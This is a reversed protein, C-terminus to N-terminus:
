GERSIDPLNDIFRVGDLVSKHQLGVKFDNIQNTYEQQLSEKEQQISELRQIYEQKENKATELQSTLADVRDDAGSSEKLQTVESGIRSALREIVAELKVPSGDDSKLDDSTLEFGAAKFKSKLATEISGIRKGFAENIIPQVLDDDDKVANRPIWTQSLQEEFKDKDVGEDTILSEDLGLRKIMENLQM